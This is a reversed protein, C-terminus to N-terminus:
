QKGYADKLVKIFAVRMALLKDINKDPVKKTELRLYDNYSNPSLNIAQCVQRICELYKEAFQKKEQITRGGAVLIPFQLRAVQSKLLLPREGVEIILENNAIKRSTLPYHYQLWESNNALHKQLPYTLEIGQQGYEGYLEILIYKTSGNEFTQHQVFGYEHLLNDRDKLTDWGEIIDLVRYLDVIEKLAKNEEKIAFNAQYSENLKEKLSDVEAALRLHDELVTKQVNVAKMKIALSDFSDQCFTANSFAAIVLLLLITKM